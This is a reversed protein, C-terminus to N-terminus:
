SESHFPLGNQPSAPWATGNRRARTQMTTIATRHRARVTHFYIYNIQKIPAAEASQQFETLIESSTSQHM